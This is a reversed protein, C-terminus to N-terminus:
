ASQSIPLWDRILAAQGQYCGEANLLNWITANNIMFRRGSKAIRIGSYQEIFGHRTVQELLSARENQNVEEASARSPLATFEDWSMEFLGLALQNAYNFLPDTRTDHSLIAFPAEALAEVRETENLSADLLSKGTWHQYSHCLMAVHPILLLSRNNM